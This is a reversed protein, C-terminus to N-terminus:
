WCSVFYCSHSIFLFLCRSFIIKFADTCCVPIIGLIKHNKMTVWDSETSHKKMLDYINFTYRWDTSLFSIFIPLFSDHFKQNFSNGQDFSFTKPCRETMFCFVSQLSWLVSHWPLSEMSVCLKCALLPQFSAPFTLLKDIVTGHQLLSHVLRAVWRSWTIFVSYGSYSWTQLFCSLISHVPVDNGVM